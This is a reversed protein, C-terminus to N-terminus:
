NLNGVQNKEILQNARAKWRQSDGKMAELEAQLMDHREDAERLQQRLPDVAENAEKLKSNAEALESELREKAHRLGRNSENLAPLAEVSELLSAYKSSSM